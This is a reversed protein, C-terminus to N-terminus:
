PIQKISQNMREQPFNGTVRLSFWGGRCDTGVDDLIVRRVGTTVVQKNNIKGL